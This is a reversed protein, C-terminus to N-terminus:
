KTPHVSKKQCMKKIKLSLSASDRPCWPSSAVLTPYKPTLDALTSSAASPVLGALTSRKAGPTSFLATRRPGWLSARWCGLTRAVTTPTSAVVTSTDRPPSCSVARALSVAHRQGGRVRDANGSGPSRLEKKAPPIQKIIIKELSININRVHM